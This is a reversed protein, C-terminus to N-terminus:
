ARLSGEDLKLNIGEDYVLKGDCVAKTFYRHQLNLRVYYIIFCDAFHRAEITVILYLRSFESQDRPLAYNGGPVYPDDTM